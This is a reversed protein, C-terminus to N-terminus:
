IEGKERLKAARKEAAALIENLTNNVPDYLLLAVAKYLIDIERKVKLGEKVYLVVLLIIGTSGMVEIITTAIDLIDIM